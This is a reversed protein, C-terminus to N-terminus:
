FFTQQRPTLAALGASLDTPEAGRAILARAGASKDDCIFVPSWGHRLNDVTGSWTGGKFSGTQAVLTKEGMAHILRNRSMARPVSFPLNWGSESVYLVNQRPACDCLRGATFVIVRGGAALCAEQAATDAGDAGGSILTFGENACLTGVQGAFSRGRPLLARSGVLAIGARRFLSIEGRCFLVPPCSVGLKKALQAPYGESVRTLPVIKQAEAKCLYEALACERQPSLLALIREAYGEDYGLRKMDSQRLQRTLDDEPAGLAQARLSLERFQAMTLVQEGDHLPTCLLLVGREAATM